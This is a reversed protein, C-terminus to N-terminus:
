AREVAYWVPQENMYKGLEERIMSSQTELYRRDLQPIIGEFRNVASLVRQGKRYHFTIEEAGSGYLFVQQV